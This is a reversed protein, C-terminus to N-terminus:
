RRSEMLNKLPKDHALFRSGESRDPVTRLSTLALLERVRDRAECFALIEEAHELPAVKFFQNEMKNLCKLIEVCVMFNM